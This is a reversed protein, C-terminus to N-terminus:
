FSKQKSSGNKEERKLNKIHEIEDLIYKIELFHIFAEEKSQEALQFESLQLELDSLLIDYIKRIDNSLDTVSEVDIEINEIKKNTDAIENKLAEKSSEEKRILEDFEKEIHSIMKQIEVKKEERIQLLNDKKLKLENDKWGLFPKKSQFQSNMEFNKYSNFIINFDTNNNKWLSNSYDSLHKLLDYLTESFNNLLANFDDRSKIKKDKLSGWRFEKFVIDIKNSRCIESVRAKEKKFKELNNDIVGINKEYEKINKGYEERINLIKKDRIDSLVQVLLKMLANVNSYNVGIVDYHIKGELNVITEYTSKDDILKEPEKLNIFKYEGEFEPVDLIEAIKKNLIKIKDEITKNVDFEGGEEEKKNSLYLDFKNIFFVIRSLIDLKFDDEKLEGLLKLDSDINNKSGDLFWFIYSQAKVHELVAKDTGARHSGLGPTDYIIFKKFHKMPHFIQIARIPKDSDKNHYSGLAPMICDRIIERDKEKYLPLMRTRSENVSVCKELLEKFSTENNVDLLAYANVLDDIHTLTQTVGTEVQTSEKFIKSKGKALDLLVNLFTSKGTSTKGIIYIGKKEAKIEKRWRQIVNLMGTISDDNKINDNTVNDSLYKDVLEDFKELIKEISKNNM